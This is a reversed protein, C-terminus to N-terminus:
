VHSGLRMEPDSLELLRERVVGDSRAQLTHVAGITDPADEEFTAECSYLAGNLVGFVDGSESM